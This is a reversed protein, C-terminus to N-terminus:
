GIREPGFVPTISIRAGAHRQRKGRVVEAAPEGHGRGAARSHVVPTVESAVPAPRGGGQGLAIALLQDRERPLGQNGGFITAHVEELAPATVAIIGVDRDFRV